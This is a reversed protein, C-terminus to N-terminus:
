AQGASAAPTALLRRRRRLMAFLILGWWFVVGMLMSVRGYISPGELGSLDELWPLLGLGGIVMMAGLGLLSGPGILALAFPKGITAAGFLLAAAVLSLM